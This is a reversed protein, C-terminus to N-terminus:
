GRRKVRYGRRGSCCRLAPLPRDIIVYDPDEDGVFRKFDELYEADSKQQGEKRSDYYYEKDVM